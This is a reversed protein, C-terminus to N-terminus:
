SEKLNGVIIAEFLVYKSTSSFERLFKQPYLNPDFFGFNRGFNDIKGNEKTHNILKGKFQM